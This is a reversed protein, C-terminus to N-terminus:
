PEGRRSGPSSVLGSSQEVRKPRTPEIANPDLQVLLVLLFVIRHREKGKGKKARRTMSM